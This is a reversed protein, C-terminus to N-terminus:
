WPASRSRLSARTHGERIGPGWPYVLGTPTSPRSAPSSPEGLLTDESIFAGQVPDYWRTVSWALGTSTDAWSGQFRWDPVAGSAAVLNGWPDYRLTATVAGADDSTWTTDHHGNTGYLRRSTGLWDRLVTGEPGVTVNRLIAIGDGTAVQAVATSTGAYRFRHRIGSREVTRLRDLADYPDYGTTATGIGPDGTITSTETLRNGARNYTHTYAARPGPTTTKM